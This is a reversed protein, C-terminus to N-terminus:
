TTGAATVNDAALDEARRAFAAFANVLRMDGVSRCEIDLLAPDSILLAARQGRSIAVNFRNASFLFDLGRPPSEGGSTATTFIVAEAQQGQCKDVTFVGVGHEDGFQKNLVREVRDVQMNYPTVVMIKNLGAARLQKVTQCVADAEEESYQRNGSHAVPLFGLAPIGDPPTRKAASSHPLLRSEYFLDSVVECLQPTMRRSEALFLGMELPMTRSEGIVHELASVGSGEPHAGRKVQSLQNPDGVMLLSEAATAVALAYALSFQGAEDVVMLDLEGRWEERSFLFATGAVIDASRLNPDDNGFATAITGSKGSYVGRDKNQRKVATFSMGPREKAREEIEDLLNNIATHSFATVGVRNGLEVQDLILNAATYTKGTGPPGQIVLSSGVMTQLLASIQETTEAKLAAGDLPPDRRLLQKAATFDDGARLNAALDLLADEIADTRYNAFAFVSGPPREQAHKNLKLTVVGLDDDISVVSGVDSGDDASKVASGERLRHDQPPFEFERLASNVPDVPLAQLGGLSEADNILEDHDMEIHAFFSWWSARDERTTFWVLESMLKLAEAQEGESDEAASRLQESEGRFGARRQQKRTPAGSMPSANIFDESAISPAEGGVWGFERIAERKRERLWERLLYTSECDVENYDAISQLLADGEPTGALQRYSEYVVISSGGEKVEGDRAAMYFREMSKISYNPVGALLAHRVVAYLDVFVKDTLLVDLEAERTGYTQALRKLASVEYPAYHYIHMRTNAAHREIFFDILDEFVARESERDHAWRPDFVPNGQGDRWWLGHLYELGGDNSWLPDGEIDYFLDAPDTKPLNAFGRDEKPPLLKWSLESSNQLQAQTRLKEFSAETIEPPRDQPGCAGLQAMTTIGAGTLREIQKRSINAVQVLHDDRQWIAAAEDELGSDTLGDDPWPYEDRWDGSTVYEALRAQARRTYDLHDQTRLTERRGDGLEVHFHLPLEGTVAGIADAYFSLQLAMEPKVSRALKTDVPEWGRQDNREIFDAQGRWDGDAGVVHAQYIVDVQPDLLAATTSAVAEEWEDPSAAPGVRVINLGLAVLANLYRQEHQEGLRAAVALTSELPRPWRKREGFHVATHQAFVWPSRLYSTLDSPSYWIRGSAPDVHM